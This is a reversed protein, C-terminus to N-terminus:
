LEAEIKEFALDQLSCAYSEEAVVDAMRATCYKFGAHWHVKRM